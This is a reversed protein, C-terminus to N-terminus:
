QFPITKRAVLFIKKKKQICKRVKFDFIRGEKNERMCLRKLREDRDLGPEDPDPYEELENEETPSTVNKKDKTAKTENKDVKQKKQQSFFFFFWVLGIM